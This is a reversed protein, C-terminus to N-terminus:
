LLCMEDLAKDCFLANNDLYLLISQQVFTSLAELNDKARKDFGQHAIRSRINYIRKGTAYLGRIDAKSHSGVRKKLLNAFRLRFKYAVEQSNQPLLLMEMIIALDLYRHSESFGESSLAYLYKQLIISLTKDAELSCLKAILEKLARVSKSDITFIEEGRYPTPHVYFIGHIFGTSGFGVSIGSRTKPNLLKMAQQFREADRISEVVLAFNLSFLELQIKPDDSGPMNFRFMQQPNKLNKISKITGDLNFSYVINKIGLAKQCDEKDIRKLSIRENICIEKVRSIIFIPFYISKIKSLLAGRDDM